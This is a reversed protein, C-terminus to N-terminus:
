HVLIDLSRQGNEQPFILYDMFASGATPLMIGLVKVTGTTLHHSKPNERFAKIMSLVVTPQREPAVDTDLPGPM